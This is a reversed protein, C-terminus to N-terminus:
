ISTDSGLKRLIWSASVKGCKKDCAFGVMIYGKKLSPKVARVIFHCCHMPHAPNCKGSVSCEGDCDDSTSM